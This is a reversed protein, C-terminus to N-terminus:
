RAQSQVDAERAAIIARLGVVASEFEANTYPKKTDALVASRIQAYATELRPTLYRTNVYSEAARLVADTYVKRKGPDDLLRRTLVNADTNRFIPWAPAQFSSDKDWPIFVWRSRSGFRYLFFNNMGVDGLFGDYEAIANEVAVYALFTDVDLLGAMTSLFGADPTQNIARVLEVLNPGTEPKNENTEPQFPVPIYAAPDPGRWGFDYPFLYEYDFLAGSDEGFRARLFPKSVSEVASYVGWYEGNV